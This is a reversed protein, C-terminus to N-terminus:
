TEKWMTNVLSHLPHDEYDMSITPEDWYMLLNDVPNFAIMYNM